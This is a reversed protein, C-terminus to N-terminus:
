KEEVFSDPLDVEDPVPDGKELVTGDALKVYERAVIKRRKRKPSM